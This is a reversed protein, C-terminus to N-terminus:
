ILITHLTSYSVIAIAFIATLNISMDLLVRNLKSTTTRELANTSFDAVYKKIQYTRMEGALRTIGRCQGKLNIQGM